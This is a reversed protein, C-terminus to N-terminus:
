SYYRRCIIMYCVWLMTVLGIKWASDFPATPPGRDEAGVSTNVAVAAARSKQLRRSLMTQADHLLPLPWYVASGHYGCIRMSLTLFELYAHKWVYGGDTSKPLLKTGDEVCRAVCRRIADILFTITRSYCEFHYHVNTISQSYRYRYALTNYDGEYEANSVMHHNFTHQRDGLNSRM